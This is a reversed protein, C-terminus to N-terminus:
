PPSIFNMYRVYQIFGVQWLSYLYDAAAAHTLDTDGENNCVSSFTHMQLIMFMTWLVFIQSHSIYNQGTKGLGAVVPKNLRIKM